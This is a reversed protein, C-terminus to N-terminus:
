PEWSERGISDARIGVKRGALDSVIISVFSVRTMAANGGRIEEFANLPLHTAESYYLDRANIMDPLLLFM